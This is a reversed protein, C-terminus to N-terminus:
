FKEQFIQAFRGPPIFLKEFLYDSNLIAWATAIGYLLRCGDRWVVARKIPHNNAVNLVVGVGKLAIACFICFCGVTVQWLCRQLKVVEEACYRNCPGDQHNSLLAVMSAAILSPAIWGGRFADRVITEAIGTQRIPAGPLCDTQTIRNRLPNEYMGSLYASCSVLVLFLLKHLRLMTEKMNKQNQLFKYM